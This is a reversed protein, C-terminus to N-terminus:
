DPRVGAFRRKDKITILVDYSDTRSVGKVRESTDRALTQNKNKAIREVDFVVFETESAPCVTYATLMKEIGEREKRSAEKKEQKEEKSLNVDQAQLSLFFSFTFSLLVLLKLRM